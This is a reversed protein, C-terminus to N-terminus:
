AELGRIREPSGWFRIALSQHNQEWFYEFSIHSKVYNMDDSGSVQNILRPFLRSIIGWKSKILEKFDTFELQDPDKHEQNFLEMLMNALTVETDPHLLNITQQADLHGFYANYEKVQDEYISDLHETDSTRQSVSDTIQEESMIFVAHVLEHQVIRNLMDENAYLLAMPGIVIYQQTSYYSGYMGSKDGTYIRGQLEELRHCFFSELEPSHQSNDILQQMQEFAAQLVNQTLQVREQIYEADLIQASAAFFESPKLLKPQELQNPSELTPTRYLKPDM